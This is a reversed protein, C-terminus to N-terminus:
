SSTMPSLSSAASTRAAPASASSHRWLQSISTPATASSPLGILRLSRRPRRPRPPWRVTPARHRLARHSSSARQVGRAPACIEPVGFSTERGFPPAQLEAALDVSARSRRMSRVRSAIASDDLESLENGDSDFFFTSCAPIHDLASRLRSRDCDGWAARAETLWRAEWAFTSSGSPTCSRRIEPLIAYASRGIEKLAEFLGVGSDLLASSAEALLQQFVPHSPARRPITPRRKVLPPYVVLELSAYDSPLRRDLVSTTYRARAGGGVVEHVPANVMVRDIRSLLQPVGDRQQYRSHGAAVIEHYDALREGFAGSKASLDLHIRGADFDCRGEGPAYCNFDGAIVIHVRGVHWAALGAVPRSCDRGGARKLRTSTSWMWLLAELRGFDCSRLEERCSTSSTSTRTSAVCSLHCYCFSVELQVM